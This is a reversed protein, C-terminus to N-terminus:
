QPNVGLLMGVSDMVFKRWGSDALMAPYLTDIHALGMILVMLFRAAYDADRNDDLTGDSQGAEIRARADSAMRDNFERLLQAVKRDRSAANHLEIALRRLRRLDPATYLAVMEPLLDARGSDLHMHQAVPLLSLAQRVVDLLLEGKASFHRYLAGVTLGARQAIAEMSTGDFGRLAFLDAAANM